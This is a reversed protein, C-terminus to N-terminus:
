ASCYRAWDRMLNQRKKLLDGRRYAAEVKDGVVHALAMEAVQDPYNTQEAVWDRFTSRFGHVTIDGRGMRALTELMAMHSIPRAARAGGFIYDGTRPTTALIEIARDSLPITHGRGSKMREAPIVWTKGRIDIESWKAGIAEGTRAATLITFELCRAATGAQSRLQAMFGSMQAYPLAPHHEVPAIKSRAPLLKQLHGRWRAPNEGARYERATAWDLIAEIRGRVRSATEPKTTWIPELVQLVLTTDITAVPVDGLVPNAYTEITATWQARHKGNRWGAAHAKIYREACTAFIISRAATIATQRREARRAELPDIRALLLKRGALVMERAEALSVLDCPGLGMNHAVGNLMFRHLWSRGGSPSIQLYLGRSVRHAGPKTIAAVERVTSPKL